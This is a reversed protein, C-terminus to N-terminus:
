QSRTYWWCVTFSKKWSYFARNWYFIPYEICPKGCKFGQSTKFKEYLSKYIYIELTWVVMSHLQQWLKGDVARQRDINRAQWPKLATPCTHSQSDTVVPPPQGRSDVQQDSPAGILKNLEQIGTKGKPCYGSHGPEEAWFPTAEPPFFFVTSSPSPLLSVVHTHGNSTETYVAVNLGRGM